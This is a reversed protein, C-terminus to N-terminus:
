GANKADDAGGFLKANMREVLDGGHGECFHAYRQVMSLQRHGLLAALEPLTAGHSAFESAACHRLDHLRFDTIGAGEVAGDWASQIDVPSAIRGIRYENPFVLDTDMRRIRSRERLLREAEGRIPLVRRDQNKTKELIIVRRDFNIDPWRLHLIENKRAATSLLLVVVDHLYENRSKKCAALLATREEPTLVRVRGRPEKPKRVNRMPNDPLWGLEKQGFTLCHSLAAMYRVVTAPSRKACEIDKTGPREKTGERGQTRLARTLKGTAKRATTGKLLRDREDAVVAATLSNLTKHGLERKWYALQIGQTYQTAPAKNPLVSEVYRDILEALTRREAEQAPFHRGHRIDSEKDQIYANAEGKTAFTKLIPKAGKMRIQVFYRTKGTKTKREIITAM